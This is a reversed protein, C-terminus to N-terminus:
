VRLFAGALSSTQLCLLQMNEAGCLKSFWFFVLIIIIFNFSLTCYMGGRHHQWIEAPTIVNVLVSNAVSFLLSAPCLNPFFAVLHDMDVILRSHIHPMRVHGIVVSFALSHQKVVISFHHGRCVPQM